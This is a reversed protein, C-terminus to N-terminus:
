ASTKKKVNDSDPGPTRTLTLHTEVMETPAPGLGYICDQGRVRTGKRSQIAVGLPVVCVLEQKIVLCQVLNYSM